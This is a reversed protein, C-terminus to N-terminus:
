NMNADFINLKLQNGEQVIHPKMLDELAQNFIDASRNSWRQLNRREWSNSAVKREIWRKCDEVESSGSGRLAQDIKQAQKKFYDVLEIAARLSAEEVQDAEPNIVLAYIMAFRACYGKLKSYAGRLYDSSAIQDVETLLDDHWEIFLQQAEPTFTLPSPNDNMPIGLLSDVVQEYSAQADEGIVKYSWHTRRPEPWSFLIRELFGDGQGAHQRFEQLGSPTLGGVISLFPNPVEFSPNQKRDVKIPTNSWASLYFEKDAGKGGRYQNLSKVWSALEDRV